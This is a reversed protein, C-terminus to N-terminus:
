IMLMLRLKCINVLARADTDQNLLKDIKAQVEAIGRQTDIVVAQINM